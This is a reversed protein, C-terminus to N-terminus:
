VALGLIERAEVPTAPSRNYDGAANVILSVLEANSSALRVKTLSAAM